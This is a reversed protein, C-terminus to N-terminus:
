VTVEVVHHVEQPPFWACALRRKRDEERLVRSGNVTTTHRAGQVVVEQQAIVAEVHPIWDAAAIGYTVEAVVEVHRAPQILPDDLLQDLGLKALRACCRYGSATWPKILRLDPYVDLGPDQVERRVREMDV